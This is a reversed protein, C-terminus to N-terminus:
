LEKDVLDNIKKVFKRSKIESGSENIKKEPGHGECINLDKCITEIIMRLDTEPLLYFKFHIVDNM